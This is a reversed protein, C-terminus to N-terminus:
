MAKTYSLFPKLIVQVDAYHQKMALKPRKGKAAEVSKWRNVIDVDDKNLKHRMDLARSDSTRRFTRFCSYSQCLTEHLDKDGEEIQARIEVPFLSSNNEYITQLAAILLADIDKTRYANGKDDSIIPGDIFGMKQKQNVVRFVIDKIKIGSSTTEICPILHADENTEGKIKGVLTLIFYDETDNFNHKLFSYLDLLFTESRRLSVVYSVAVYCVFVCWKHSTKFDKAKVIRQEAEDILILLLPISLAKNQRTEAGMRNQCGKVFRSFWFSGCVDQGIRQYMGCNDNIALTYMNAENSSRM